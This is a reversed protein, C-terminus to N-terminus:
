FWVISKRIAEINEEIKGSYYKTFISPLVQLGFSESFRAIFIAYHISFKTVTTNQSQLLKLFINTVRAILPTWLSDEFNRVILGCVSAAITM